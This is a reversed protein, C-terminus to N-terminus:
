TLGAIKKLHFYKWGWIEFGPAMEFERGIQLTEKM